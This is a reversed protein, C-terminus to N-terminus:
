MECAFGFIMTMRKNGKKQSVSKCLSTMFLHKPYKNINEDWIKQLASPCQVEQPAPVSTSVDVIKVSGKSSVELGFYHGEEDQIFVLKGNDIYAPRGRSPVLYETVKNKSDLLYAKEFHISRHKDKKNFSKEDLNKKGALVEGVFIEKGEKRHSECHSDWFIISKKDIDKNEVWVRFPVGNQKVVNNLRELRTSGKRNIKLSRVWIERKKGLEKSCSSNTPCGVFQHDLMHPSFNAPDEAQLNLCCILPILVLWTKIKTMLFKVM